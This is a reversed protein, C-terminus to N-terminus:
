TTLDCAHDRVVVAAVGLRRAQPIDQVRRWPRYRPRLPKGGRRHGGIRHQQCRHTDLGPLGAVIQRVPKDRAHDVLQDPAADPRQFSEAAGRRSGLQLIRPDRIGIDPWYQFSEAVARNLVADDVRLEQFVHTKNHHCWM